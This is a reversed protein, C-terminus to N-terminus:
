SLQRVGEPDFHTTPVKQLAPGQQESDAGAKSNGQGAVRGLDGNLDEEGVATANSSSKRHELETTNQTAEGALASADLAGPGVREATM